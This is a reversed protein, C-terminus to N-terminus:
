RFEIVTRRMEATTDEIISPRGPLKPVSTMTFFRESLKKIVGVQFYAFALQDLVQPDKIWRLEGGDSFAYWVEDRLFLSLRSRNFDDPLKGQNSYDWDALLKVNTDLEKKLLALIKIKKEKEIRRELFDNIWIATLVGFLAGVLTALSNSLFDQFFGDGYKLYGYSFFIIVFIFVLLLTLRRNVIPETSKKM